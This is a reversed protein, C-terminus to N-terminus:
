REAGPISHYCSVYLDTKCSGTTYGSGSPKLGSRNRLWSPVDRSSGTSNDANPYPIRVYTRPPGVNNKTKTKLSLRGSGLLPGKPQEDAPVLHESYSLQGMRSTAWLWERAEDSTVDRSSVASSSIMTSLMITCKDIRIREEGRCKRLTLFVIRNKLCMHVYGRKM